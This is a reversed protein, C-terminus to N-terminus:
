QQATQELNYKAIKLELEVWKLYAENAQKKMLAIEEPTHKYNEPRTIPIDSETLTEPKPQPELAQTVEVEPMAPPEEVKEEVPAPEQIAQTQATILNQPKATKRNTAIKSEEKASIEPLIVEQQPAMIPKQKVKVIVQHGKNITKPTEKPPNLFIVMIGAVCAAVMWPWVRHIRKQKEVRQMLRANLEASMQPLEQEELRIADRLNTDQQRLQCLKDEKM